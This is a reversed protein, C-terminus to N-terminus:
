LRSAPEVSRGVASSSPASNSRKRACCPSSVGGRQAADKVLDNDFQTPRYPSVTARYAPGIYPHVRQLSTSAQGADDDPGHGPTPESWGNEAPGGPAPVHPM